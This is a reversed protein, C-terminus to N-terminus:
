KGNLKMVSKESEIHKGDGLRTIIKGDKVLAKLDIRFHLKNIFETLFTYKKFEIILLESKLEFRTM